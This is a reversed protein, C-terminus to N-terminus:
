MGNGADAEDLRGALAEAEHRRAVLEVDSARSPSPSLGTAGDPPAAVAGAAAAPLDAAAAGAAQSRGDRRSGRRMRTRGLGLLM